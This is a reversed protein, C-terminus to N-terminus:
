LYRRQAKKQDDYRARAQQTHDLAAVEAVPVDWWAESDPAPVLPDTEVHVVTTRPSAIAKRLAERFGEAGTAHLVDAGLSAANAALDVPIPDGNLGTATRVRHRTGFRDAGVSESLNGISAYGHNQVLVVVLKIGEAVATTLEQAMMLYSGDGVMVFVERDPAAMKVGLGGAIEYGMCSYGYEVHYGKPDRARWLKHLDGPMSGAACVVVDRPGSETNVIGIVEAQAPPTRHRLEYADDVAANWAAMLTRARGRHAEPVGYGALSVRLGRIAEKADAVVATGALKVADARAVNVNVFKVAPNAFLSHSATTFDSYRTGIGVVVDAERALANAATTGTAGIAGVSCAHDWPLAGKGAQTEAVPIGTREAFARLEETAQSYIVGGGAVILPREAAQLIAAAEDLAAPEPVPRAIRWVRRAFLEEPWDFAEAQVDQPLALTVAGTEAPDTLVRMAALLAGPLQEPRNIRDWYRSVPKFCDNVSVDFSRADELEQLVPNAARTAFVDGPLLLVPLRNVTALAAGTVMNTAGPGISTTCAFTSLRDSMRAFGSAAHVMAQENRAMYYPFDEAHELLAQGMGAVNGHGFIGFCGAFFRREVGDRESYQAALFRVVAQGVTLRM